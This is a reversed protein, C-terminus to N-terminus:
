CFLDKKHEAAVCLQKYWEDGFKRILPERLFVYLPIALKDESIAAQACINWNHFNVAEFGDYKTIRIPYLHCSLPKRFNIEGAFFAKEIACYVKSDETIAFVCAESNNILQTVTEREVDTFYVGRKEVVEVGKENMYPKIKPYIEQLINIENKELPAGSDGCVCCQGKCVSINCFFRKELIDLSVIASGIQIM